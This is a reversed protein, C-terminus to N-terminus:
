RAGRLMNLFRAIKRHVEPYQRVILRREDASISVGEHEWTEEEIFEKLMDVVREPDAFGNEVESPEEQEFEADSSRLNMDPGPFNMIRATIESISYLRLVPKGRAAEATTFSLIGGHLALRTDTFRAVLEAVQKLSAKKLRLTIDPLGELRNDRQMEPGIIVNFGAVTGIFDVAEGLDLHKWSIDVKISDLRRMAEQITKPPPRLLTKRKTQKAADSEARDSKASDTKASDTKAPKVANSPKVTEAAKAITGKTAAPEDDASAPAALLAGVLAMAPIFKSVHM